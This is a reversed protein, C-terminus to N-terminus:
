KVGFNQPSIVSHYNLVNWVYEILFACYIVGDNLHSQILPPMQTVCMQKCFKHWLFM